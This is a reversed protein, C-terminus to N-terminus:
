CDCASTIGFINQLRVHLEALFEVQMQDGILQISDGDPIIRFHAIRCWEGRDDSDVRLIENVRAPDM